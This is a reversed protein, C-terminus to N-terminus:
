KLEGFKNEIRDILESKTLNKYDDKHKRVVGLREEPIFKVIDIYKSFLLSEPSFTITDIKCQIPVKKYLHSNSIPKIKM